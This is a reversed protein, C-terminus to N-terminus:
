ESVTKRDTGRKSHYRPTLTRINVSPKGWGVVHARRPTMARACEKSCCDGYRHAADLPFEHACVPNACRRTIM